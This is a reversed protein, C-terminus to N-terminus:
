EAFLTDLLEYFKPDEGVVTSLVKGNAIIVKTPYSSVMYDTLVTSDKPVFVHKWPLENDAVAKKWKAETDHCDMGIIELKDKYKEYYKKM